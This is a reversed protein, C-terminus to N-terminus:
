VYVFLAIHVYLSPELQMSSPLIVDHRRILYAQIDQVVQGQVPRRIYIDPIVFWRIYVYM